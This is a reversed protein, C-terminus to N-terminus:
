CSYVSCPNIYSGSPNVIGFHLHTGTSSGSSGMTGIQQGRSVTQGLKVKIDTRLHAYIVKYGNYSVMVHNGWYNGCSNSYSGTNACSSYVEVVTGDTASYIPSGFGCGSIDIGNHHKGWRWGFRSTIIYPKITPWYWEGTVPEPDYTYSNSYNPVALTGKAVIKNVTPTIEESKTIYLQTIDGNKFQIKETVKSVGDSGEQIVKTTGQYMSSDNQYETDYKDTIKEIVEKEHVVTVVPEILGISVVQGSSLLIDKNPIEPNAVLFEEISLNNKDIIDNITDGDKVVYSEQKETTGFLLYKSLDEKNTFINEKVSILSKKITIDEEWYVSEIHEGEDTIEGQTNNKYADLQEAGVFAAVTNYFADEFSEKDLTYIYLPEKTDEDYKITVIYGDITFSGEEDIIKYIEDVTQINEQYTTLKEIKLGAPPYVKDINYKQKIENQKDDIIDLLEDESKIYGIAKGNLYVKYVEIPSAFSTGRTSSFLLLTGVVLTILIAIINDKLKM